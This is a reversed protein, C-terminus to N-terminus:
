KDTLKMWQKGFNYGFYQGRNYVYNQWYTFKDKNRFQIKVLFEYAMRLVLKLLRLIITVRNERVTKRGVLNKNEHRQADMGQAFYRRIPWIVRMKKKDVLHKIYLDPSFYTQLEPIKDRMKIQMYTEEGYGLNGGSMGYDVPFGNVAVLFDKRYFM